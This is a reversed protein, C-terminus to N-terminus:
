SSQHRTRYLSPSIGYKEKFTRSFHTQNEFGTEYTIEGVPLETNILLEAALKLRKKLVWKAPSDKFLKKFERKFTPVSKCSLKAYEALTLKYAFNNHMIEELSPQKDQSLHFLYSLLQANQPNSLLSLVLEKFKLEILNEPPPPSQTFYPLMSQFFSYSIANVDLLLVHDTGTEPLCAVSLANRNERILQKLFDDPMFFVMVCWGEENEREAIHAGKKVFFCTGEKLEWTQNNNHFIRRGSIVYAIFNCEIYFSEKRETQPCDYNTFLLERCTLQKFM